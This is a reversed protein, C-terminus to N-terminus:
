QYANLKRLYQRGKGAIFQNKNRDILGENAIIRCLQKDKIKPKKFATDIEGQENKM